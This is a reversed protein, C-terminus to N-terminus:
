ESRMDKLPSRVLNRSLPLLMAALGTVVIVGVTIALAEPWLGVLWVPATEHTSIFILRASSTLSSSSVSSVVWAASFGIVIAALAVVLSFMTVYLTYIARIDNRKAGIARFVATERRSDTVVRGVMGMMLVAAIVSVVLGAIQLSQTAKGMIDDMLVSNSGFYAIFPKKDSCDLGSCGKETLFKRAESASSFEVISGVGAPVSMSALDTQPILDARAAQPVLETPVVWQGSLSMGGFVMAFGDFTGISSYDPADPSLGVIRFQLKKEVPRVETGYLANFEFQNTTLRREEASRTDKTVAVPGCAAPDPLAYIQSPMQYAKDSKHKEIDTIQQKTQEIAQQSSGNRYCLAIMANVARKKVEDVRAIKEDSTATKSLPKLGIAKEAESYPIVLPIADSGASIPTLNAGDLLFPDIVSRSLYSLTEPSSRGYMGDNTNTTGKGQFDEKGGSMIRLNSTDGFSESAFLTKPHYGQAAQKTLDFGTPLLVMQEKIVRQAATNQSNLHEKEGQSALTPPQDQAADYPVGLRKADAKKQEVITKNLEKAKALLEPATDDIGRSTYFSVLTLYRESLSNHAYRSYSEMGGRLLTFVFVLIAFLLGALTATVVTRVKRTKLKTVALTAADVFRIM